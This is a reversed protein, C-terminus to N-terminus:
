QPQPPGAEVVFSVIKSEAQMERVIKNVEAPTLATESLRIRYQLGVLGKMPGEVVTAKYAGLFNAIEAATAQPAFRVAAFSGKGWSAVEYAGGGDKVVVSTIVAAQLLIAVAAATASWALTRPTFGSLFESIRAAFDFSRQRRPARAEEADIAAFLKEMARASPAGLTENLHITEALEERVLDYRRSLERDGALAQEVRDADRRNLTGAAHWPLLAEIEHREPEKNIMNM